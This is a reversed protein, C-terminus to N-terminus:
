KRWDHHGRQYANNGGADSSAYGRRASGYGKKRSPTYPAKPARSDTPTASSEAYQNAAEREPEGHDETKGERPETSMNADIVRNLYQLIFRPEVGFSKKCNPCKIWFKLRENSM